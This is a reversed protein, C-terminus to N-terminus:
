RKTEEEVGSLAPHKTRQKSNTCNRFDTGPEVSLWKFGFRESPWSFYLFSGSPDGSWDGESGKV